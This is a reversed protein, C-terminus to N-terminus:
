IFSQMVYREYITHHYTPLCAWLSVVREMSYYTPYGHQCYMPEEISSDYNEGFDVTDKQIDALLESSITSLRAETYRM